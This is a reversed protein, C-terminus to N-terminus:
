TPAEYDVTKSLREDKDDKILKRKGPIRESQAVQVQASDPISIPVNRLLRPALGDLEAADRWGRNMAAACADYERLGGM